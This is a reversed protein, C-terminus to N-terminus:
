SKGVCYMLLNERLDNDKVNFIKILKDIWYVLKEKKESSDFYLKMKRSLIAAQMKMEETDLVVGANELNDLVLELASEQQKKQNKLSLNEKHLRYYTTYQPINGVKYKRSIDFWLAYDECYSYVDYYLFEKFVFSRFMVTPHSFSNFFYKFLQIEANTEPYSVYQLINDQEDVVIHNSGVMAYTPNKDLFDVQLAIRNPLMMDDADLRAIYKGKAEAIGRNLSYVIGRNKTNRIVKLRSDKIQSVIKYTRDKSADDVLIIEINEYTQNLVSEICQNLYKEGNYCPIVVSVLDTIHSVYKEPNTAFAREYVQMTKTAMVEASFNDRVKQLSKESYKRIQELDFLATHINDALDEINFTVKESTFELHSMLGVGDNIIENLGEIDTAVIPLQNALMEIATYSCQEAYSPIVGVDALTYFEYLQEKSLNGTLTILSYHHIKSYVWDYDGKGCIILRYNQSSDKEILKEFAEILEAVGKNECLTGAFLVIKESISFHYKRRLEGKNERVNIENLDIGNHIITIKNKPIDFLHQLIDAADSTVTIIHDVSYYAKAENGLRNRLIFSIKQRQIFAKRIKFFLFYDSKIFDRWPVCHVTLVTKCEPMYRKLVRAFPAQNIWNFHFVVKEQGKTKEQLFLGIKNEQENIASASVLDCPLYIHEVADLMETKITTVFAVKVWILHLVVGETKKLQKTLQTVYSNLGNNQLPNHYDILYIHIM